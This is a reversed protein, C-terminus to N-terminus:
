ECTPCRSADSQWKANNYDCIIDKIRLYLGYGPFLLIAEEWYPIANFLSLLFVIALIALIIWDRKTIVEINFKPRTEETAPLKGLATEIESDDYNEVYLTHYINIQWLSRCSKEILGIRICYLAGMILVCFPVLLFLSGIRDGGFFERFGEGGAIIAMIALFIGTSLGSTYKKTMDKTNNIVYREGNIVVKSDQLSCDVKKYGNYTFM